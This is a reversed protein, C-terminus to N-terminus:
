SSAKACTSSGETIKIPDRELLIILQKENIVKIPLNKGQYALAKKEKLSKKGNKNGARQGIGVVLYDTEKTVTKQPIGGAKQILAFAEERTMTALTGTICVNKGEITPKVLYEEMFEHNHLQEM